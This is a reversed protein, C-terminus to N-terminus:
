MQEVVIEINEIYIRNIRSWDVDAPETGRAGAHDTRCVMRCVKDAVIIVRDPRIESWDVGVPLDRLSFAAQMDALRSKLPGAHEPYAQEIREACDDRLKRTEFSIEM